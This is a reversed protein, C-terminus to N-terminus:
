GRSRRGATVRRLMRRLQIIRAAGLMAVALAGVVASLLMSVGLPLVGSLGFFEVTVSGTNQLIFVLLLVILLTM